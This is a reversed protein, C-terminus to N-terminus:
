AAMCRLTQAAPLELTDFTWGVSKQILFYAMCRKQIIVKSTSSQRYKRKGINITINKTSQVSDFADACPLFSRGFALVKEDLAFYSRQAEANGVCNHFSMSNSEALLNRETQSEM